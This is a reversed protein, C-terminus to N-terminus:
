GPTEQAMREVQYGAQLVQNEEFHRGVIQMSVAQGDMEAVPISLAPHGTINFLCTNGLMQVVDDKSSITETKPIPRRLTPTMICDISDLIQDVRTRLDIARNRAELYAKGDTRADLAAIPLVRAIMSKSTIGRELTREFADRLEHSYDGGQGRINGMQRLVWAFETGSIIFYSMIADNIDLDVIEVDFSSNDELLSIISYMSDEIKKSSADFAFKPIAISIIDNFNNTKLFTEPMSVSSSSPDKPSYDILINTIKSLTVVDRALPGITDVSPAFQVLGDRPVATHTTKLGVIGCCASPIRVSGAADTGISADVLGGAIAAASGSSSGGSVYGPYRPNHVTGFDSSEGTIGFAFAEVNTKGRISAGADLLRKVIVADDSPVVFFDSSGATMALNRVAITDKIGVTLGSLPGEDQTKRPTDYTSLLSNYQDTAQVRQTKDANISTNDEIHSDVWNEFETLSRIYDSIESSEIRFSLQEAISILEDECDSVM